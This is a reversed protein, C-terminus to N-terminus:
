DVLVPERLDLRHNLSLGGVALQASKLCPKAIRIAGLRGNPFHREERPDRDPGHTHQHGSYDHGHEPRTKRRRKRRSDNRCPDDDDEGPDGHGQQDFQGLPPQLWWLDLELVTIIGSRMRWFPRMAVSSGFCGSAFSITTAPPRITPTSLATCNWRPGSVSTM